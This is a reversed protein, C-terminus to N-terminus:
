RLHLVVIESQTGIRFHGGWIGLGSTVLVQTREYLQYGYGVKFIQNVLWNIPWVQGAHTHGSVQLDVKNDISEQIHSPQHDMVIVAKTTDLGEMLQSLAHRKKNTADDRGILYLADNLLVVTDRLLHIHSETYFQEVEALKGTYYEHNGLTAYVGQTAKLQTLPQYMREEWVAKMDSDILDGCLLILDPKQANIFAVYREAHKRGLGYGLHLDSAVVITMPNENSLAYNAVPLDHHVVSPHNFKVNGGLVM